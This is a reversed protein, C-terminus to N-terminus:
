LAAAATALATMVPRVYPAIAKGATYVGQAVGMAKSISDIVYPLQHVVGHRPPKSSGTDDPRVRM